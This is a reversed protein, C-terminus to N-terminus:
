NVNLTACLIRKEAQKFTREPADALVQKWDRREASKFQRDLIKFARPRTKSLLDPNTCFLRFIEAFWESDNPCYNTVKAENAESRVYASYMDADNAMCEDVHHGLEHQIVGYPTRDIVYGPWSWCAGGYGKTACKDPMIVIGRDPKYFACCNLYYHRSKWDIVTTKCFEIEPNLRWFTDLLSMGAKLLAKKQESPM